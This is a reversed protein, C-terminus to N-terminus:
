VAYIAFLFSERVEVDRIIIGRWVYGRFARM